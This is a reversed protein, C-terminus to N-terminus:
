SCVYIEHHTNRTTLRRPWESATTHPDSSHETEGGQTYRGVTKAQVERVGYRGDSPRGERGGRERSFSITTPSKLILVDRTNNLLHIM